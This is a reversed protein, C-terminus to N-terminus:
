KTFWAPNQSETGRQCVGVRRQPGARVARRAAVTLRPGSAGADARPRGGKGGCAGGRAASPCRPLGEARLRARGSVRGVRPRGRPGRGAGAARRKGTFRRDCRGRRQRRGEGPCRSLLPPAAGEQGRPPPALAEIERPPRTAARHHVRQWGRASRVREGGGGRM